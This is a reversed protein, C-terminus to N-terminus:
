RGLRLGDKVSNEIDKRLRDKSGDKEPTEPVDVNLTETDVDAICRGGRTGDALLFSRCALGGNDGRSARLCCHLCRPQSALKCAVVGRSM